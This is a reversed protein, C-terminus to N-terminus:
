FNACTMWYMTEYAAAAAKAPERRACDQSICMVDPITKETDTSQPGRIAMEAQSPLSRSAKQTDELIAKLFAVDHELRVNDSHVVNSLSNAEEQAVEMGALKEKLLEVERLADGLKREADQKREVTSCLNREAIERGTSAAKLEEELLANKRTLSATTTEYVQHHHVDAPNALVSGGGDVGLPLLREADATLSGGIVIGHKHHVTTGGSEVHMKEMSDQIGAVDMKIEPQQQRKSRQCNGLVQMKKASANNLMLRGDNTYKEDELPRQVRTALGFDQDQHFQKRCSIDTSVSPDDSLSKRGSIQQELTSALSNRAFPDTCTSSSLTKLHAGLEKINAACEEYPLLEMYPASPWSMSHENTALFFVEVQNSPEKKFGGFAVLSTINKHHVPVLSFGKNTTISVSPSMISACWELKLVDFVLTEAHRRRKSGGGTIHWKSGCLASCCGARPSPRHGHVKVRSWIMTEFDLSHLDNLIRSKSQGGFIFLLKDEYLAAVHNSRASPGTGRYNYHLPLWSLSKLDFMFLDNLKRGKVDEGGFLILVAGARLVTHGSRAVPINGKAEIHSWCETVVDFSWVSLKDSLPDTKGGILLASKGWSVLTHGKCAPINLSITGTSSYVKSTAPAWTLSDLSLIQTDDLLNHSSDGGVVVMKSGVVTAAHQFRPTPKNGYTPLPNWNKSSELSCNHLDCTHSSCHCSLDDSCGSSSALGENEENTQSLQNSSRIPSRTGQLPDKLHVKLRGIKKRRRSFGFIKPMPYLSKVSLPSSPPTRGRFRLLFPSHLPPTVSRFFFLVTPGQSLCLLLVVTADEGGKLLLRQSDFDGTSEKTEKPWICASRLLTEFRLNQLRKSDCLREEIRFTNSGFSTTRLESNMALVAYSAGTTRFNFRCLQRVLKISCLFDLTTRTLGWHSAFGDSIIMSIRSALFPPDFRRNLVRGLLPNSFFIRSCFSAFDKPNQMETQLASMECCTEPSLFGRSGCNSGM